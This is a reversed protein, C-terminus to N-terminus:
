QNTAVKVRPLNSKRARRRRNPVPTSKPTVPIKDDCKLVQERMLDILEAGYYLPPSHCKTYWPYIACFGVIHSHLEQPCGSYDPGGIGYSSDEMNCDGITGNAANFDGLNDSGLNGWGTNGEGFNCNEKDTCCSTCNRCCIETDGDGLCTIYSDRGPAQQIQRRGGWETSEARVAM